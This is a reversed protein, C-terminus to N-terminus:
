FLQKICMRIDRAGAKQIHELVRLLRLLEIDAADGTFSQIPICNERQLISLPSNDVMIVRSLCEDVARLDKRLLGSEDVVCHERFYRRSIVRGKDIKDILPEAYVRKSATFVVIRFLKSACLLFDQLFPRLFVMFTCTGGDMEFTHWMCANQKVEEQTKTGAAYSFTHVLTEDLDLVLTIKSPPTSIQRKRLPAEPSLIEPPPRAQSPNQDSSAERKPCDPNPAAAEVNEKSSPITRLFIWMTAAFTGVTVIHAAAFGPFPEMWSPFLVSCAALACVLAFAALENADFNVM